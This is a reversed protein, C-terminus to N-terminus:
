PATINTSIYSLDPNIRRAKAYIADVKDDFRDTFRALYLLNLMLTLNEPDRELM